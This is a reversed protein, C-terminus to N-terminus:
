QAGTLMRLLRYSEGMELAIGYVDADGHPVFSDLMALYTFRQNESLKYIWLNRLFLEGSEPRDGIRVTRKSFSYCFGSGHEIAATGIQVLSDAPISKRPNGAKLREKIAADVQYPDLTARSPRYITLSPRHSNLFCQWTTVSNRFLAPDPTYSLFAHIDCIRDQHLHDFHMIGDKNVVPTASQLSRRLRELADAVDELSPAFYPSHSPDPLRAFTNNTQPHAVPRDISLLTLLERVTGNLWSIAENPILARQRLSATLLLRRPHEHMSECADWVQILQPAADRLERLRLIDGNRTRAKRNSDLSAAAALLASLVSLDWRLKASLRVARDAPFKNTGAEISRIYSDSTSGVEGPPGGLEQESLGLLKRQQQIAQGLLLNLPSKPQRPTTEAM